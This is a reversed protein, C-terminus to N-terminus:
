NKIVKFSQINKNEQNVVNIFYTASPLDSTDILTRQTNVQEFNLLKGQIDFLQYMLKENNYNSIQLSLNDLAPNPFMMLSLQLETQKVGVTFIEYAHQVGQLVSGNTGTNTTYVIQGVSYAVTGGSGTVNGGATNVSEQAQALVTFLLTTALMVIPKSKNKTM